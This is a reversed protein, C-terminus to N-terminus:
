TITRLWFLDCTSLRPCTQRKWPEFYEAAVADAHAVPRMKDKSGPNSGEGDSPPGVQRRQQGRREHEILREIEQRAALLEHAVLEGVEAVHCLVGQAAAKYEEAGSQFRTLRM